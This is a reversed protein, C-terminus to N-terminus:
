RTGASDLLGCIIPVQRVDDEDPDNHDWDCAATVTGLSPVRVTLTIRTIETVTGDFRPELVTRSTITGGRHDYVAQLEHPSWVNIHLATEGLHTDIRSWTLGLARRARQGLLTRASDRCQLPRIRNPM